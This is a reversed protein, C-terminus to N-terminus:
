THLPCKQVRESGNKPCSSLRTISAQPSLLFKEGTLGNKNSQVRACVQEHMHEHM